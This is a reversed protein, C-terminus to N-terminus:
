LLLQASISPGFLNLLIHSIAPPFISKTKYFLYGLVLGALFTQIGIAIASFTYVSGYQFLRSAFHGFGFFLSSIILGKGKGLWINLRSFLYGRFFIEEPLGIGVIQLLLADLLRQNQAYIADSM